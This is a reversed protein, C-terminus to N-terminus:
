NPPAPRTMPPRSPVAIMAFTAASKSPGVHCFIRRPIRGNWGDGPPSGFFSGFTMRPGCSGSGLPGFPGTLAVPPGVGNFDLGEAPECFAGSLRGRACVELTM